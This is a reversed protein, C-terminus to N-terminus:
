AFDGGISVATPMELKPAQSSAFSSSVTKRQLCSGSPHGYLGCTLCKGDGAALSAKFSSPSVSPVALAPRKEPPPTERMSAQFQAEAAAEAELAMEQEMM